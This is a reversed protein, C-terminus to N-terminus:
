NEGSFQILTTDKEVGHVGLLYSNVFYLMEDCFRDRLKHVVTKKITLANHV